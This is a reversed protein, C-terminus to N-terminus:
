LTEAIPTNVDPYIGCDRAEAQSIMFSDDDTYCDPCELVVMFKGGSSWGSAHNHVGVRESGCNYCAAHGKDKALQELCRRQSDSLYV